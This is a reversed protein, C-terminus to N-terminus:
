TRSGANTFRRARAPNSLNFIVYPDGDIAIKLGKKFEAAEYM